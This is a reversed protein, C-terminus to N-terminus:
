SRARPRLPVVDGEPPNVVREIQAALAEVARALEHEYNHRDYIGRVGGVVHGLCREAVDGNVDARSLLTRATRRLDHVRWGNVGCALDFKKKAQSFGIQRFVFEAGDIRPQAAIIAQAAKSLPRVLDVKTKNRAAPLKWDTGDIESWPLEAAEARRAGTLLLFRILSGFVDAIEAAQWVARLEGDTLVRSREHEKSNYRNMGRVIPSRFEDSRKAHWNMIKRLYALCSDAQRPGNKDEIIDFLKVLDSRKVSEIPMDGIAPFVLRKLTAERVKGTRLKSAERQLYNLSVARVTDERADLIKARAAARAKAPDNGQAVEHLADACLKRAASLTIGAQLTLKKPVGAFRYRVAFSKKGSAHVVVYLGRAGPDPIERRIPGPKLNRIAIDTLARSAM